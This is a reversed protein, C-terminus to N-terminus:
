YRWDRNNELMTRIDDAGFVLINPIISKYDKVFSEAKDRLGNDEKPTLVLNTFFMYTTPIKESKDLRTKFGELESKLNRRLWTWENEKGDSDKFKAQGITYGWAKNKEDLAFSANHIFFERLGDPGNGCIITSPEIGKMLSQILKEFKDPGLRNLEYKM